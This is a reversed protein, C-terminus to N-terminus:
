VAKDLKPKPMSAGTVVDAEFIQRRIAIALDVHGCERAIDAAFNLGRMFGNQQSLAVLQKLEDDRM